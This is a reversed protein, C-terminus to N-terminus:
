PIVGAVVGAVVELASRSELVSVEADTKQRLVDILTKQATLVSLEDVLGLLRDNKQLEYNKQAWGTATLYKEFTKKSTVFATYAKSIDNKVKKATDANMLQAQRVQSKAVKIAGIKELDFLPANLEFLADWRIDKQFGARYAYINTSAQLKPWLDGKKIKLEKETIGINKQAALVDSRKEGLTLYDSLPMIKSFIQPADNILPQPDLGTLLSLNQYALALQSKISELNALWLSRQTQDSAVESQRVKGLEADKKLQTSYQNIFGLIQETSKKQRTLAVVNYFSSVLDSLLDRKATIVDLSLKEDNLGVAKLATFEKFGQFIPQSIAMHAEPKSFRTFSSSVGPETPIKDQISESAAVNAKPLVKGLIETKQAKNEIIKEEALHVEQNNKLAAEYCQKLTMSARAQTVGFLGCLGFFLIQKKM